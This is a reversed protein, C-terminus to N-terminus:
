SIFKNSVIYDRNRKYQIYNYQHIPSLVHGDTNQTDCISCWHHRTAGRKYQEYLFCEPCTENHEYKWWARKHTHCLQLTGGIGTDDINMIFIFSRDNWM